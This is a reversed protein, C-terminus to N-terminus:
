MHVSMMILFPSLELYAYIRVKDFGQGIRVPHIGRDLLREAQELLAGALVVVGTYTCQWCCHVYLVVYTVVEMNPIWALALVYCPSKNYM